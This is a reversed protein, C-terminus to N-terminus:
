AGSVPAVRPTRTTIFHIAIRVVARYKGVRDPLPERYRGGLGTVDTDITRWTGKRRRQIKVTAGSECEAFDDAASVRGRAM